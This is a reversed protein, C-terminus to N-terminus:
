TPCPTTQVNLMEPHPSPQTHEARSHGIAVYKGLAASGRERTKVMGRKVSWGGGKNCLIGTGWATGNCLEDVRRFINRGRDLLLLLLLLLMLM